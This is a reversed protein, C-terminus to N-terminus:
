LSYKFNISFLSLLFDHVKVPRLGGASILNIAELCLFLKTSARWDSDGKAWM